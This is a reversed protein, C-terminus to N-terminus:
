STYKTSVSLFGSIVVACADSSRSLNIASISRSSTATSVALEMPAFFLQTHGALYQSQPQAVTADRTTRSTFDHEALIGWKGFGLRAYAGASDRHFASAESLRSTVGVIARNAPHGPDVAFHLRGDLREYDFGPVARRSPTSLMTLERVPPRTTMPSGSSM